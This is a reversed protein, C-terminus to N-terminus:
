HLLWGGDVHLSQGTIFSASPCALFAVAAAVDEPRIQDEPRARHHAPLDNEAEVQIAGPVVTDVAIDAWTTKGHPELDVGWVVALRDVLALGRGSEADHAAGILVPLARSGDRVSIRVAQGARNTM